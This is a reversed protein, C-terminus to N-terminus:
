QSMTLMGWDSKLAYVAYELMTKSPDSACSPSRSAWRSLRMRRLRPAAGGCTSSLIRSSFSTRMSSSRRSSFRRPKRERARAIARLWTASATLKRAVPRSLNTESYASSVSRAFRQAWKQQSKLSLWKARCVTLMQGAAAIGLCTQVSTRRKLMGTRPCTQFPPSRTKSRSSESPGSCCAARVSLTHSSRSASPSAPLSKPLTRVAQMNAQQKSWQRLRWTRRLWMGALTRSGISSLWAASFPALAHRFSSSVAWLLGSAFPRPPRVARSIAASLPYSPMTLSRSDALAFGSRYPLKVGKAETENLLLPSITLTRRSALALMPKWCRFSLTGMCM